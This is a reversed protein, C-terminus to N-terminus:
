RDWKRRRHGGGGGGKKSSSRGWDREEVWDRGRKGERVKEEKPLKDAQRPDLVEYDEVSFKGDKSSIPIGGADLRHNRWDELDDDSAGYEKAEEEEVDEVENKLKSGDDRSTQDRKSGSDGSRMKNQFKSLMEWTDQEDRTAGTEGRKDTGLDAGNKRTQGRKKTEGTSPEQVQVAVQRSLKKDNELLDHSSKPGTLSSLGGEEAEGFSLLATNKKVKKKDRGDVRRQAAERRAKEQELREERTIRPVIDDFPNILVKVQLLKPPYVPREPDDEMLEVDAISLVNYITPGVVKGFITHRGQLEPTMELTIFFQSDNTGPEGSNAMAVMGRRNFKIRQHPEDEFPHGYVSEGGRGTGTPDGTQICFGPVIRHFICNDYYGELALSIINRCAKPAEKSWLEVEVDGKSTILLIKGDTPPETVYQNAM